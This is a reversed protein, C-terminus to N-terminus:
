VFDCVSWFCCHFLLSFELIMSFLQHHDIISNKNHEPSFCYLYIHNMNYLLYILFHYLIQPSSVNKINSVCFVHLSLVVYGFIGFVCCVYIYICGLVAYMRPNNLFNQLHKAEM